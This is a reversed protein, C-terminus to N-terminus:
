NDFYSLADLNDLKEIKVNRRVPRYINKVELIMVDAVDSDTENWNHIKHEAEAFSDFLYILNSRSDYIVFKSEPQVPAKPTKITTNKKSTPM